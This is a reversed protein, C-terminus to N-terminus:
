KEKRAHYRAANEQHNWNEIFKGRKATQVGAQRADRRASRVDDEALDEIAKRITADLQVGPNKKKLAKAHKWRSKDRTGWSKSPKGWPSSEWAFWPVDKM